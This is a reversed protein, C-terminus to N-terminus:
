ESFLASFLALRCVVSQISSPSFFIVSLPWIRGLVGNCGTATNVSASLVIRKKLRGVRSSTGYYKTKNIRKKRSKIELTSVQGM